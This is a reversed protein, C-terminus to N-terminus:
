YAQIVFYLIYEYSILGVVICNQFDTMILIIFWNRIKKVRMYM